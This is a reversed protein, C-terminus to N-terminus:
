HEWAYVRGPEPEFLHGDEVGPLIAIARYETGFAVYDDTEVMIAPKCAIPDRLVAFGSRTGVLFTYFGDLAELSDYLAQELTAGKRMRWTLYSAAVESDNETEFEMGEYKLVRRVANHNSLSGNHVLCQDVGTSFPHSGDTTVLSETAMRTHGIAHSGAMDSLELRRVVDDPRGVDKYLEMRMGAGVIHVEPHADGLWTRLDSEMEPPVEVVIHNARQTIKKEHKLHDRLEAAFDVDDPVRLTLKVSKSGGSSYIAFGVSDPGRESLVSLM